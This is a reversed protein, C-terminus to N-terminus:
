DIDIVVKFHMNGNIDSDIYIVKKITARPERASILDIIETTAAAIASQLPMDVFARTLGLTRDYAIEYKYTSLLNSINQIIRSKGKSFWNLDTKNLTDITILM